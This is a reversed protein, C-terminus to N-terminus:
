TTPKSHVVFRYEHKEIAKKVTMQSYDLASAKVEDNWKWQLKTGRLWNTKQCSDRNHKKNWVGLSDDCVLEIQDNKLVDNANPSVVVHKTQM